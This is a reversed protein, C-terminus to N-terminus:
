HEKSMDIQSSTSGSFAHWTISRCTFRVVCDADFGQGELHIIMKIIKEPIFTKGCVDKLVFHQKIPTAEEQWSPWVRDLVERSIASILAGTDVIGDTEEHGIKFAIKNVPLLLYTDNFKEYEGPIEM